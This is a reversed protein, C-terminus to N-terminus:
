KDDLKLDIDFDLDPVASDTGADPLEGGPAVSERDLQEAWWRQAPNLRGEADVAGPPLGTGTAGGAAPKGETVLAEGAAPKDEDGAGSEKREVMELVLERSAKDLKTFKLGMGFAKKPNDPDKAKSWLVQGEGRLVTSGDQLQLEFRVVTGKDLPELRPLFIGGKSVHRCFRDIFAPRDPFPLKAKKYVPESV